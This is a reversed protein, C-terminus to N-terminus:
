SSLVVENVTIPKDIEFQEELVDELSKRELSSRADEPLGRLSLRRDRRQGLITMRAATGQQRVGAKNSAKAGNVSPNKAVCMPESMDRTERLPTIRSVFPYPIDTLLHATSDVDIMLELWKM